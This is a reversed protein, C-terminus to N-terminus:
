EDIIIRFCFFIYMKCKKPYNSEAKGILVVSRRNRTIGDSGIKSSTHQVGDICGIQLGYRGIWKTVKM